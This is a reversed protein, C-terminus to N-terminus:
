KRKKSLYPALVLECNDRLWELATGEQYTAYTTLSGSLTVDVIRALAHVDTGRTLEGASVAAALLAEIGDRTARAQM